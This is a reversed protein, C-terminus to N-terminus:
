KVKGGNNIKRGPLKNNFDRNLPTARGYKQGEYSVYPREPFFPDYRLTVKRGALVWSTEYINSNLSFTGDKKVKRTTEFQFIENEMGINLLRVKHSTNM